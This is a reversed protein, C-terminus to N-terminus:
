KRRNYLGKATSYNPETMQLFSACINNPLKNMPYVKAFEAIKAEDGMGMIKTRWIEVEQENLMILQVLEATESYKKLKLYDIKKMFLMRGESIVKYKMRSPTNKFFSPLDTFIHAGTIIRVVVEDDKDDEVIGVIVADVNFWARLAYASFELLPTKVSNPQFAMMQKIEIRFSQSVPAMDHLIELLMNVLIDLEHLNM